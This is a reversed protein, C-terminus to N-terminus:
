ATKVIRYFIRKAVEATLAYLFIIISLWGYFSLPLTVLGMVKALPTLPLFLAILVVALTSLLLYKGPRSKYFAKSTRIILVILAASVVSEILWGTRFQDTSAHLWFLLVGFTVYDFLSSIIGFVIMFKKIFRTDMRRPKNIWSEDVVDSAITMEPIDTLLNTLLVQKPLLPLFSLFLSSGAMSFMNGFNASTAMFIYKLTNAFTKRGEKVGSILVKLDKGLLVIDAAQRAVDVAGSVSIGVDAMHLAPSDNIGDGIFGVVNGAKKLALLIREKQSPEVAAFVDTQGVQRTLAETSMERLEEGSLVQPDAFGVQRSIHAAVLPNDGTIIKLSIGLDKLEKLTAAADAKPPDSFLLMGLFIMEQEEEKQVIQVDAGLNKYAIGLIRYGEKSVTEYLQHLQDNIEDVPILNGNEEEAHSCVTLVQDFAGKTILQNGVSDSVFVSLRKRVFDYPLEDKKVIGEINLQQHNRIAQDIPNTFGSEFVANLYAFRFVKDEEQGKYNISKYLLVNGETLTGTKDSCLINMSGFNEISSLKKVIVQQRAMNTAGKALNLSIIAPLLQPTLGVAIALSFLFSDVIPKHLYVNISFIVVVLILTVEMLLFGFRKIGKEFETEPQINRLHQSISGFETNRGTNVVVAKATGSIINTGMFLANDREAIRTTSPLVCCKKEAPFTEGTLSAENAFLDRSELLRCDGPVMNGANLVVIDGPVIQEIPIAKEKGDRLVTINVSVMELLKSVANAAGKEQLFGLLASIVIIVLIIVSDTQEGLFFSLLAAGVLILTIPNLFQNLFLRFPSLKSSAALKNYGIEKLRQAADEESLGTGSTKLETLLHDEACAYYPENLVAM